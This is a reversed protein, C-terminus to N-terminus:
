HIEFRGRPLTARHAGLAPDGYIGTAIDFGLRYFVDTTTNRAEAVGQDAQAIEAGKEAFKANRNREVSFSVAIRCGGQEEPSNLSACARDKGPGPLTNGEAVAMGIDFGQRASDNPQQNRLEVALPDENALAEGKKVALCTKELGPAAPNNRARADRASECIPKPATPTTGAPLPVRPQARVPEPTAPATNLASSTTGIRGLGAEHFTSYVGSDLGSVFLDVHGPRPLLATVAAGPTSVMNTVRFWPQWQLDNGEIYTSYIGGDSGVAFL